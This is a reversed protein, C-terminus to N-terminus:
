HIGIQKANPAFHIMTLMRRIVRVFSKVPYETITIVSATIIVLPHNVHIRARQM